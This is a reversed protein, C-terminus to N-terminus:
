QNHNLLIEAIEIAQCNNQIIPSKDHLKLNNNKTEYIILCVPNNTGTMDVMKIKEESENPYIRKIVNRLRNETLSLTKIYYVQNKEELKNIIKNLEHIQPKWVTMIEIMPRHKMYELMILDKKKSPIQDNASLRMRRREMNRMEYETENYLRQYYEGRETHSQLIKIPKQYEYEKIQDRTKKHKYNDHDYNGCLIEREKFMFHSGHEKKLTRKVDEVLREIDRSSEDIDISKVDTYKYKERLYGTERDEQEQSEVRIVHDFKRKCMKYIEPDSIVINNDIRLLTENESLEHGKIITRMIDDYTIERNRGNLDIIFLEKM